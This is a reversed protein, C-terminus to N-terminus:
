QQWGKFVEDFTQQGSIGKEIIIAGRRGATTEFQLYLLPRTRMMEINRSLSPELQTLAILFVNEMVAIGQGILPSGTQNEVQRFEITSLNKIPGIESTGVSSFQVQITHSASFTADLNRQITVEARSKADPIDIIARIVNILPQGQGGSMMDARWVVSGQRIDVQNPDEKGELVMTARNAVAIQPTTPLQPAATTTPAQAPLPATPIQRPTPATVPTEGGGSGVRENTKASPSTSVPPPARDQVVIVPRNPAPSPENRRLFALTAIAIVGVLGLSVAVAILPKRSTAQEKRGVHPRLPGSLSASMTTEAGSGRGPRPEIEASVNQPANVLITASKPQGIPKDQETEIRAVVADLAALERAVIDAAVPPEMSAMQRTLATRARDYIALRAELTNPTLGSIAKSLLPFYDAM